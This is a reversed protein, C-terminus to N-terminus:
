SLCSLDRRYSMSLAARIKGELSIQLEGKGQWLNAISQCVVMVVEAELQAGTVDPDENVIDFSAELSERPHGGVLSKHYVRDIQYRKLHSTATGGRGVARAFSATLDEPLLLV